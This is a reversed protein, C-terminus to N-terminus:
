DIDEDACEDAGQVDPEKRHGEEEQEDAGFDFAVVKRKGNEKNRRIGYRSPLRTVEADQDEMSEAPERDPTLPVQQPPRRVGVTLRRGRM